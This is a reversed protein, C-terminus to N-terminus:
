KTLIIGLSYAYNCIIKKYIQKLRFIENKEKFLKGKAKASCFYYKKKFFFEYM